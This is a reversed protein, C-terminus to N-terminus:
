RVYGMETLAARVVERDDFPIVRDRFLQSTEHGKGAVLVVDDPEAGKLALRIAHARDPEEVVRAPGDLGTKVEEIIKLPDESRPNDSTIIVEDALRGAVEGMRPRKQRDRDGGCGFVLRITGTTLERLGTLVKELADDTHAYDVLVVFPQGQEIGELRGSVGRLSEIGAVIEEAEFGMTGCVGAAALCNYVNHRGIHASTLQLEGWPTRVTFTSGSLSLSEIRGTVDSATEVGYTIVRASSGGLVDRWSADDANMVAVADKDLGEFLMRKAKLYEGLSGHYDLHESSLNTFVGCDFRCGDVRHQVLAHSSVEMVAATLGEDVMERLHKQVDHSLPTTMNAPLKRAGISYSITGMLGVPKGAARYIGEVLNTTTTKGNTGTVGILKLEHSPHAFFCCALKALAVHSDPVVLQPISESATVPHEVVIACAGNRIADAIYDHGDGNTERCAVFLRGPQVDRSDQTLGLVDLDRWNVSRVEDLATRLQSLSKM